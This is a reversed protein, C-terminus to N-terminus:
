NKSCFKNDILNCTQSFLEWNDVCGCEAVDCIRSECEAEGAVEANGTAGGLSEEVANTLGTKKVPGRKEKVFDYGFAHRVTEKKPTRFENNANFGIKTHRPMPPSTHGSSILAMFAVIGVMLPARM